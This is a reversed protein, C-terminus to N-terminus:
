EVRIPIRNLLRGNAAIARVELRLIGPREPLVESDYTEGM